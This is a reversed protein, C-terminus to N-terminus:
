ELIQMEFSYQDDPLLTSVGPIEEQKKDSFVARVIADISYATGQFFFSFYLYDIKVKFVISLIITPM